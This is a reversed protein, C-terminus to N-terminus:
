AGEADQGAGKVGAGAGAGDAALEDGDGGPEGAGGAPEGESERVVPGLLVAPVAQEGGGCLSGWGGLGGWGSLRLGWRPCAPGALVVWCAWLWWCSWCFVFLIVSLGRRHIWTPPRSHSM